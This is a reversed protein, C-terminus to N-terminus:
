KLGKCLLSLGQVSLCLVLHLVEDATETWLRHSDRRLTVQTSGLLQEALEFAPNDQLHLPLCQISVAESGEKLRCMLIDLAQLFDPCSESLLSLTQDPLEEMASLLLHAASLHGRGDEADGDLLASLSERDRESLEEGEAIDLTEGSCLEELVCEMYSLATRDMLAEQLRKFFSWRTFEPLQALPSLDMEQPGSPPTRTAVKEGNCGRDVMDLPDDSPWSAFSDAEIGGITGPQLCIDFHGNKKIELELISYAIVTGSPVELSVVSEVEVNSSDKSFVKVSNGLMGLLGLIGQFSCQEKQTQTISCPKTTLVREKVVALVDARKELQQMLPNQMEVLRGSSDQLLKRVDLEEKNLKGFCSQLKCSGEGRLTASSSGVETGLTGSVNGRYTGEFTLFVKKSVVPALVKDGQLLDSLTLDTPQYKPKQWFWTRNRKVVLAMPVLKKSDNVRSVHILSGEPDVQRVFKDTAKSFM